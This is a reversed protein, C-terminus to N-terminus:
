GRRRLFIVAGAGAALILAAGLVLGLRLPFAAKEEEGTQEPTASAEPQTDPEADDEGGAEQASPTATPAATGKGGNTNQSSAGASPAAPAPTAAPNATDEQATASQSNGSDSSGSSGANNNTSGGPNSDPKQTSDGSSDGGSPKDSDGGVTVEASVQAVEPRDPTGFAANVLQVADEGATLTAQAPKGDRTILQVQGLDLTGDAFLTSRGSLYVNLRGSDADYRYEQVSSEIADDFVFKADLPDTSTVTLSLRMTTIDQTTDSPLNLSVQAGDTSPTLVVAGSEEASVALAAAAMMSGLLLTAFLKKM